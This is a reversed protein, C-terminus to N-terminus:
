EDAEIEVRKTPRRQLVKGGFSPPQAAAAAMPQAELRVTRNDEVYNQGVYANGAVKLRQMVDQRAANTHSDKAPPPIIGRTRPEPMAVVIDASGSFPQQLRQLAASLTLLYTDGPPRFPTYTRVHEMLDNDVAGVGVLAEM